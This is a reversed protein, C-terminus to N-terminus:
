VHKRQRLQNDGIDGVTGSKGSGLTNGHRCACHAQGTDDFADRPRAAAVAVAM